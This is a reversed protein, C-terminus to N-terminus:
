GDGCRFGAGQNIGSHAPPHDFRTRVSHADLITCHVSGAHSPRAFTIMIQDANTSSAVCRLDPRAGLGHWGAHTSARTLERERAAEATLVVRTETSASRPFTALLCSSFRRDSRSTPSNAVGAICHGISFVSRADGAGHLHSRHGTPKHRTRAESPECTGRTTRVPHLHYCGPQDQWYDYARRM